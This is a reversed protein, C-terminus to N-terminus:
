PRDAAHMGITNGARPLSRAAAAAPQPDITPLYSPQSDREMARGPLDRAASMQQLDIGRPDQEVAPQKIGISDIGVAGVALERKSGRASSATITECAWLSWM